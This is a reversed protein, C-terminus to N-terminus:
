RHPIWGFFVHPLSLGHGGAAQHSCSLKSLKGLQAVEGLLHPRLLDLEFFAPFAGLWPPACVPLILPPQRAM